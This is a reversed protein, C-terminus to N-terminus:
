SSLQWLIDETPLHSESLENLSFCFGNTCVYSDTSTLITLIQDHDPQSRVVHELMVHALLAKDRDTGTGLTLTEDPM